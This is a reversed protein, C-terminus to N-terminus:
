LSNCREVQSPKVHSFAGRQDITFKLTGNLYIYVTGKPTRQELMVTVPFHARSDICHAIEDGQTKSILKRMDHSRMLRHLEAFHSVVTPQFIVTKSSM